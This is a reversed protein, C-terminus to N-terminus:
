NRADQRRNEEVDGPGAGRRGVTQAADLCGREDRGVPSVGRM